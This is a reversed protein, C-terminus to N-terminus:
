ECGCYWIGSAVSRNATSRLTQSVNAVRPLEPSAGEKERERESESETADWLVQIRARVPDNASFCFFIVIKMMM